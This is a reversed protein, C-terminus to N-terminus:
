LASVEVTVGPTHSYRKHAQLMVVQCDDRWVVGNCGDLVAKAVNDADPRLTPLVKGEIAGQRRKKPWSPPIAFAIDVTLACASEILAAGDMALSAAHAVLGEYAATKAPTYMRGTKTARARGKGQPQGPVFFRISMTYACAKACGFVPGAEAAPELM